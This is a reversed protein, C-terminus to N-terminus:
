SRRPIQHALRILEIAGWISPSSSGHTNIQVQRWVQDENLFIWRMVDEQLSLPLSSMAVVRLSRTTLELVQDYVAMLLDNRITVAPRRMTHRLM